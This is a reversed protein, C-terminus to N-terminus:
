VKFAANTTILKIRKCVLQQLIIKIHISRPDGGQRAAKVPPAKRDGGLGGECPRRRDAAKVPPSQVAVADATRGIISNCLYFM